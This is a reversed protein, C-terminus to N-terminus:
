PSRTARRVNIEEIEPWSRLVLKIGAQRFAKTNPRIGATKLPEQYEKLAQGFALNGTAESAATGTLRQREAADLHERMRNKAISVITTSLSTWKEKGSAFTRVYYRGNKHRYLFRVQTPKWIKEQKPSREPAVRKPVTLGHFIVTYSDLKSPNVNRLDNLLM